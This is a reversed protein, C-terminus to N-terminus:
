EEEHNKKGTSKRQEFVLTRKLERVNERLYVLDSHFMSVGRNLRMVERAFIPSRLRQELAAAHTLIPDIRLKTWNTTSQLAAFEARLSELAKRLEPIDRKYVRDVVSV